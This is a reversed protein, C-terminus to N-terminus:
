NGADIRGGGLLTTYSWSSHFIFLSFKFYQKEHGTKQFNNWRVFSSLKADKGRLYNKARGKLGLASCQLMLREQTM